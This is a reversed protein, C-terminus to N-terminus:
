AHRGSKQFSRKLVWPAINSLCNKLKKRLARRTLCCIFPNLCSNTHALCVTVPFVYTHVIYYAEDWHIVNLKVLVGWFTIAHNPMWCLFFSLVVVTISKTVHIRRKSHSNNLNRKRVFRLLLLYSVSLILMPLVFAVLIKQLHYFALWYHGAPFKLLCLKEGAVNTVTSFISTPATAVTAFVWLFACVWKVSCSTPPRVSNKTASAVSCYRTISMATLFFVSAYMNMVTVSLIIKCMADGFPWSFDLATDVAWFPLTLVFQLDTVALNIIFVNITTSQRCHKVRMVFLVLSNGVLGIACVLIYVVSVMIRLVPSRDATVDIDELNGFTVHGQPTRNFVRSSSNFPDGM